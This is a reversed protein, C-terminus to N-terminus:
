TGEIARGVIEAAEVASADADTPLLISLQFAPVRQGDEVTQSRITASYPHGVYPRSEVAPRETPGNPTLGRLM